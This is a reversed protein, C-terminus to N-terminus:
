NKILIYKEKGMISVCFVVGGAFCATSTAFAIILMVASCSGDLIMNLLFSTNVYPLLMILINGEGNLIFAAAISIMSLFTSVLSILLQGDGYSKATLSIVSLLVIPILSHVIFFLVFLITKGVSGLLSSGNIYAAIAAGVIGFVYSFLTTVTLALEKGLFISYPSTQTVLLQEFTGSEKERIFIDGAVSCTATISFMSVIAPLVDTIEYVEGTINESVEPFTYAYSVFPIVLVPLLIMVAFRKNKCLNIIEKEAVTIIGRM